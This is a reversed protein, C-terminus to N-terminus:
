IELVTSRFKKMWANKFKEENTPLWNWYRFNRHRQRMFVTDYFSLNALVTRHDSGLHLHNSAGAFNCTFHSSTLIFDIRRRAGLASQFTWQEESLGNEDSNLISLHFAACLEDLRRGRDGVGVQSNFDGGLFEGQSSAM